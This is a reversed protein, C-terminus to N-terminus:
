AARRVLRRVANKLGVSDLVRGTSATLADVAAHLRVCLLNWANRRYFYVDACHVHDTAFFAKQQGEGETFDFIRYCGEDFLKKLIVYQLVTGPSLHRCSADYGVYQYVLVGAHLPCYVYAAPQDGNFLLYARVEGRAGADLMQEKFEVCAPLGSHLLREQYTRSSLERALRYFEALEAPSRYEKWVLEGGSTSAYRRVKRALTSRSKSSFRKLYGEFDGRLDVYFRKYQHPVYRIWDRDVSIRPLPPNVPLSRMLFPGNGPPLRNAPSFHPEEGGSSGCFRRNYSFGNQVWTFMSIEGLRYSLRVSAPSWDPSM